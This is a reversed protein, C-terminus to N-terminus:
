WAGGPWYRQLWMRSTITCLCNLYCSPVREARVYSIIFRHFPTPAPPTINHHLIMEKTPKETPDDDHMDGFLERFRDGQDTECGYNLKRAVSSRKKPRSQRENQEENGCAAVVAAAPPDDGAVPDTDHLLYIFFFKL